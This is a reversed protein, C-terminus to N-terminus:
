QALKEGGGEASDASDMLIATQQMGVIKWLGDNKVLTINYRGGQWEPIHSSAESARSSIVKGEINSVQETVTCTAYEDWPWAWLREINMEYDFGTITYDDYASSGDFSGALAPDASLFDYHFYKNLEEAEDRTLIVEVRKELGEDLIVYINAINMCMFFGCVLMGVLICLVVLRQAIFWVLRRIYLM